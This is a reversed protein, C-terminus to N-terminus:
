SDMFGLHLLPNLSSGCWILSIGQLALMSWLWQGLGLPDLSPPTGAQLPEGHLDGRIDNSTTRVPDVDKESLVRMLSM